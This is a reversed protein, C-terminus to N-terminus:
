MRDRKFIDIDEVIEETVGAVRQRLREKRRARKKAIKKMALSMPLYNTIASILMSDVLLFPFATHHDYSLFKEQDPDSNRCYNSGLGAHPSRGSHLIHSGYIDEPFISMGLMNARYVLWRSLFTLAINSILCLVVSFRVFIPYRWPFICVM